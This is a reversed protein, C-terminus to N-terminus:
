SGGNQAQEFRQSAEDLEQLAEGQATFDGDRQAERLKALASQMDEVASAMEPTQGEGQGQGQGQGQQQEQQQGDSDGDDDTPTGGGEGQQQAADGAGQGFVQDLAGGITSSFGVKEGYSVLVRGLQPFANEDNRRIYIPEVYMIGGNIPLTLLNGYVADVNANSLLTREQAVQDNSQFRNQAQVPGETQNEETPLKLVTIQGYNEPDSEASVWAGLAQRELVRLASTIQFSPEERGPVQAMLYYPPQPAGEANGDGGGTEVTPDPPVDWFTRTAYFDQPRDVHYRSILERQIKFLDEPYRFHQRLDDTVESEPKVVGPFVGQWAKLVPDQDDVSYLDVKGDFADVTAKVSNRAYSINEDPQTPQGTRSDVTTEGLSTRQAYPYNELTTYGDVIWKVEGDIVAPYPDGDVKLWPAVKEVRNKPDRNYMIKSGDSIAGSFLIRYEGETAAFVARNFWNDIPVGGEGNYNFTENERPDYEPPTDEGTGGVIAYDTVLEGYYIRANEGEIPFTDDNGNLDSVKFVPYGGEGSGADDGGISPTRDVQNAPAAVFGNGHTYVLHRNIWSQQNEALGDTNIERLGVIYDQMKTSGDDQKTPYRDIDLQDPFGYFNQRGERNTYTPALLTPDLVRINPITPNNRVEEPEADSTGPYDQYEVNEETIGYAERTAELHREIPMAEKEIANPRVSFQELIAPWAAGILVGSLVMLATAIAPLQLNRTFAAAFFALACFIAIFILILKAPLVANLDTYTAGTFLENRDSFLLEYRDFFYEVAKLLVFLGATIALQIRAARSVSSGRGALRIGGFLYHTIAAGIFAVVVAVFLWGLLWTYFPLDFAYFGIDLGFEPDQKGFNTGNLFLQAVQWNGQASVGAIIGALVPVGIGILRARQVITARYRALPDDTNGVPVFVPRTRYAILLAIALVGGVLIGAGVFLAARTLIETTFVGRYGVEGFWLWDVYTDLMRAGLLVLLVIFGALVLLIRSRRTLKPMQVPPRTAM